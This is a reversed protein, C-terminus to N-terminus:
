RANSDFRVSITSTSSGGVKLHSGQKSLTTMKVIRGEEEKERVVMIIMDRKSKSSSKSHFEAKRIELGGKGM